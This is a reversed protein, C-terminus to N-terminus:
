SGTTMAAAKLRRAAEILDPPPLHSFSLRVFGSGGRGGVHFRTGPVFSTGHREAVVLLDDAHVGDPTPLWLFWGGDPSEVGDLAGVLADRQAAYRDRIMVLHRDYAGSGGFVAMTLAVSHNVGGGSDVYGLDALRGVVEPAANIWGLRLGPAVVKSFSGLRVVGAGGAIRWLSPPAVGAYSLERYTDDEVITLDNRQALEVLARRREGPLSRGTPNAFTPVLYVIPVRRGSGRLDRLRAGLADPLVGDVDAPAPVLELGRDALVRLALHYTPADVLAVDGPRTLVEAALALGHSAGGTVFTEAAAGADARGALWDILPGPGVGRGYALQRWGFERAAAGGAVAWAEVPLLEPRPHGWGLDLIGDRHVFQLLRGSDM